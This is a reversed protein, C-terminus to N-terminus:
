TTFISMEQSIQIDDVRYYDVCVCHGDRVGM